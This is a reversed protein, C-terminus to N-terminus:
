SSKRARTRITRGKWRLQRVGRRTGAGGPTRLFHDERRRMRGREAATGDVYGALHLVGHVVLRLREESEAVRYIRAQRRAQDLNVYVEGELPRRDDSLRFSVVDTTGPLGFFARKIRRMAGDGVFVISVLAKRAREGALVRGVIATVPARRVRLTDHANISQIGSRRPGPDEPFHPGAGRPKRRALPSV